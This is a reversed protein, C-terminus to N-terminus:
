IEKDVVVYRRIFEKMKTRQEKDAMIMVDPVMRSGIEYLLFQPFYGDEKTQFIREFEIKPKVEFTLRQSMYKALM